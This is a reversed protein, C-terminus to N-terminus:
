VPYPVTLHHKITVEGRHVADRRFHQILMHAAVGRPEWGVKRKSWRTFLPATQTLEHRLARPPAALPMSRAHERFLTDRHHAAQHAARPTDRHRDLDDSREHLTAGVLKTGQKSIKLLLQREDISLNFSRELTEVIPM